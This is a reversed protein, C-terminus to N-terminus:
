PVVVLRRAVSSLRATAVASDFSVAAVWASRGVFPALVPGSALTAGGDGAGDLVGSGGTLIQPYWANLTRSYLPDPTLPVTVSGLSTPGTGSASALLAYALGAETEPFDLELHIPRGAALSIEHHTLRLFASLGVVFASGANFVTGPDSSPAGVLLDELDDENGDGASAMFAGFQSGHEPGLLEGLLVGTGGSYVFAAGFAGGIVFHHSAGVAVDRVGDADLDGLGVVSGGFGSSGQSGDVRLLLAGTAGSYAFVSGLWSAAHPAGILVDALGDGDMDGADAVSQGVFEDQAVGNWRRLLAGTAGSYLYASGAQGLGGPSANWAGVLLDDVGDGDTDGAGAVATGFFESNAQGDLQWILQGSLGSYVYVSGAFPVANPSAQIASVMVDSAGDGDLDGTWAVASGFRDPFDCGERRWLLRGDAGSYVYAAGVEPVGGFSSYEYPAGIVFDPVGDRDADGGGAVAEGFRGFNPADLRRLLAGSAGSYVYASGRSGGLHKAGAAGVLLDPVSDDDVLGAGSVSCGLTEQYSQGDFRHFTEWRGGM